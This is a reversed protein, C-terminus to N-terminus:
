KSAISTFRLEISQPVACGGAHVAPEFRAVALQDRIATDLVPAVPPYPFQVTVPDVQGDTGVVFRAVISDRVGIGNLNTSLSVARASREVELTNFVYQGPAVGPVEPPCGKALRAPHEPLVTFGSAAGLERYRHYMDM